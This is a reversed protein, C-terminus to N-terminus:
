LCPYSHLHPVNAIVVSSNIGNNTNTNTISPTQIFINSNSPNPEVAIKDPLGVKNETELYM